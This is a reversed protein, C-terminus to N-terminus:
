GSGLPTAHTLNYGLEIFVSHLLYPDGKRLELSVPKYVDATEESALLIVAIVIGALFKKM